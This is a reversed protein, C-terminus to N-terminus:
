MKEPTSVGIISMGTFIVNSIAKILILKDKSVKNYKNIFRREPNEKGLNWFSHFLSALEFLYTAIRHPELKTIAMDICKPWESLKKLIEIEEKSYDLESQDINIESNINKGINRFVSCIRAYCYQVYYLPNDKSKAIVNDFDFELEVDSSRSLM